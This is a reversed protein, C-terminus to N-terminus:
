AALYLKDTEKLPADVKAADGGEYKIDAVYGFNNNIHYDVIQRRGDPLVVAYRGKTNGGNRSERHGFDVSTVDDKM